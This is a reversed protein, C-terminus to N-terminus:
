HLRAEEAGNLDLEPRVNLRFKSPVFVFIGSFGWDTLVRLGFFAGRIFRILRISASKLFQFFYSRSELINM